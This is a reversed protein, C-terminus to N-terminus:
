QYQANLRNYLHLIDIICPIIVFLTINGQFIFTIEIFVVELKNLDIGFYNVKSSQGECNKISVRFTDYIVFRWLHKMVRQITLYSM